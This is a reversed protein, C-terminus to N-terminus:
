PLEERAKEEVKVKFPRIAPDEKVRKGPGFWTASIQFPFFFFLFLDKIRALKVRRYM